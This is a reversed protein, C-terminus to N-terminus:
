VPESMSPLEVRVIGNPGPEVAVSGNQLTVLQQVIALGLGVGANKVGDREGQVFADFPKDVGFGPGEDRVRVCGDTIGVRVTSGDPTFKTANDLLNVLIRRLMEPDAFAEGDGSSEITISRDAALPEITAAADRTIEALACLRPEFREAGAEIRALALADRVMRDLRRVDRRVRELVLQQGPDVDGVLGDLLNGLSMQISTLPTRLEHSVAGVFSSKAADLQQLADAMSDFASGLRGIEDRRAIRARAGLDGAEMRKAVGTLTRIPRVLWAACLLSLVVALSVALATWTLVQGRVARVASFVSESPEAVVVKWGLEGIAIESRLADETEEGATVMNSGVADLLEIRRKGGGDAIPDLLRKLVRLDVYAVLAGIRESGRTVPASVRVSTFGFHDSATEAVEPQGARLPQEVIRTGVNENGRRNFQPAAPWVGLETPGIVKQVASQRTQLEQTSAQALLEPVRFNAYFHADLYLDAPEVLGNLNDLVTERYADNSGTLKSINRTRQGLLRGVTILKGQGRDVFEVVLERALEALSDLRSAAEGRTRQELMRATLLGACVLPVVSALLFLGVLRVWLRSRMATLMSRMMGIAM